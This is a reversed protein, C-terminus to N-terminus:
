RVSTPRPTSPPQSVSSFAANMRGIEVSAAAITQERRAAEADGLDADGPQRLRRSSQAAACRRDAGHDDADRRQPETHQDAQHRERDQRALSCRCPIESSASRASAASAAIRTPIAAVAHRATQPRDAADPTVPRVDARFRRQGRLWAADLALHPLGRRQDQGEQLDAERDEGYGVPVYLYFVTNPISAYRAWSRKAEAETVMDKDAVAATMMLHTEGTKLREVVVIDPAIQRM